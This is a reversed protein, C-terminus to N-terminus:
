EATETLRMDKDSKFSVVALDNMAQTHRQGFQSGMKYAQEAVM